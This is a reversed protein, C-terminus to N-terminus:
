SLAIRPTLSDRASATLISCANTRVEGPRSSSTNRTLRVAFPWTTVRSSRKSRSKPQTACQLMPFGTVYYTSAFSPLGVCDAEAGELIAASRREIEAASFISMGDELDSHGVLDSRASIM